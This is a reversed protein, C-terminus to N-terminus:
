KIINLIGTFVEKSIKHEIVFVYYGDPLDNGNRKGDWDNNYSETSYVLIGERTFVKVICNEPDNINSLIWTDNLGDDNPTLLNPVPTVNKSNVTIQMSDYSECGFTNYARLTYKTTVLPNAIPTLSTAGDLWTDPIWEVMADSTAKIKVFKGPIIIHDQGADVSPTPSIGVKVSDSIFCQMSNYITGKVYFNNKVIISDYSKSDSWIVLSGQKKIKVVIIDGNCISTDGSPSLKLVPAQPSTTFFTLTDWCGNDLTTKLLVKYDGAKPPNFNYILGNFNNTDIKWESKSLTFGVPIVSENNLKLPKPYCPKTDSYKLTPKPHINITQFVTDSNGFKNKVVLSITYFGEVPFKQFIKMSNAPTSISAPGTIKWEWVILASDSRSNEASIMISDNICNGKTNILGIPFLPDLINNGGKENGFTYYGFATGPFKSIITGNGNTNGKGKLNFASYYNDYIVRLNQPNNVLDNVNSTRYSLGVSDIVLGSNNLPNTIEWYKLSSIHTINSPLVHVPAIGSHLKFGIDEFLNVQKWKNYISIPRFDTSNGIPVTDSIQYDYPLNIYRLYLPGNVYSTINGPSLVSNSNNRYCILTDFITTEIIGTNLILGETLSFRGHIYLTAAIDDMTIKSISADRHPFLNITKKITLEENNSFSDVFINWYNNAKIYARNLFINGGNGTVYLCTNKINVWGLKENDMYHRIKDETKFAKKGNLTSGLTGSFLCNTADINNIPYKGAISSDLYIYYGTITEFNTNNPNAQCNGISIIGHKSKLIKNDTLNLTLLGGDSYLGFVVSDIDQFKNNKINYTTNPTATPQYFIYASNSNFVSNDTFKISFDNSCNNIVFGNKSQSVITNNIDITSKSYNNTFEFSNFAINSDFSKLGIYEFMLNDSMTNFNSLVIGSNETIIVSQSCNVNKFYKDYFNNYLIGTGTSDVKSNYIDCYFNDSLSIGTSNNEGCTILCQKILNNGCTLSGGNLAIGSYYYNRVILNNLKLDTYMGQAGICYGTEFQKYYKSSSVLTNPNDGSVCIGDLEICCNQIEIVSNGAITLGISPNPPVIVTESNRSQSVPDIGWNNGRLVMSKNLVLFEQYVGDSIYITDGANAGNFASMISKKPGINGPLVIISLGDYIDDGVNSNVFWQTAYSKFSM